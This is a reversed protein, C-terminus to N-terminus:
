NLFAKILLGASTALASFLTILGMIVDRRHKSKLKEEELRGFSVLTHIDSMTKKLDAFHQAMQLQQAHSAEMVQKYSANLQVIAKELAETRASQKGREEAIKILHSDIPPLVTTAFPDPPRPRQQYSM